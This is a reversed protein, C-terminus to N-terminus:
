KKAYQCVTHVWILSSWRPGCQKCFHSEFDCASSLCVVITTIPAKLTLMNMSYHVVNSLIYMYFFLASVQQEEYLAYIMELGKMQKQVQQLDPYMTIPLDFLKEANALEQREAEHKNVEVRYQKMLELGTLYSFLRLLSTLLIHATDFLFTGHFMHLNHLTLDDQAHAFYQTM